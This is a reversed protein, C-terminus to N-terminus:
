ELHGVYILENLILELITSSIAPDQYELSPVTVRHTSVDSHTKEATERMAEWKRRLSAEQGQLLLIFVNETLQTPPSEQAATVAPSMLM